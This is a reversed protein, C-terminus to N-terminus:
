PRIGKRRACDRYAATGRANREASAGPSATLVRDAAENAQRFCEARIAAVSQAQAGQASAESISLAFASILLAVALRTKSNTM